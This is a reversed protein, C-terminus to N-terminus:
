RSLRWLFNFYNRFNEAVEKREILIYTPYRGWIVLATKNGYINITFRINFIEQVTKVKTLPQKKYYSLWNSEKETVIVRKIIGRKVRKEDWNKIFEGMGSDSESVGIVLHEEGKKLTYLIDNFITRAAKPGEFIFIEQKTKATSRMKELIPMAELLANEKDKIVRMLNKPDSAFFYKKKGKINYSVLGEGMLRQLCNYAVSSNLRSERLIPGIMSSGLKILSLYVKSEASTLGASEIAKEIDM